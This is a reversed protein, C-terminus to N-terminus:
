ENYDLINKLEKADLRGAVSRILCVTAELDSMAMCGQHSHAYRVPIGIVATPIGEGELHVAGGDTGGSVRVATQFPINEDRAVDALWRVLGRHAILSPDYLRIQPGKGMVTQPSGGIREDTPAGELVIAIDPRLERGAVRMGRLGVEEQVTGVALLTNPHQGPDDMMQLLAACGVRDDLAKGMLVGTPLLIPEVDPVGMDGIEVGLETLGERGLAGFDLHLDEPKLAKSRDEERIFHPPLVGTIGRYEGGNKNHFRFRQAPLAVAPWSGLTVFRGWGQDTLSQVMLGVEDMHAAFMVRPGDVLGASEAYINGIRQKQWELHPCSSRFIRRVSEENGSPGFAASLKLMLEPLNQM